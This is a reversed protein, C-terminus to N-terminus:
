NALHAYIADPATVAGSPREVSVPQGFDSYRVSATMTQGQYAVTIVFSTMRGAGDITVEYPMKTATEGFVVTQEPKFSLGNGTGIKNLNITGRFGEPTAEVTNVAAILRAAGGPDNKGPEFGGDLSAPVRTPDLQLWTDGAGPLGSERAAKLYVDDDVLRLEVVPSTIPGLTSVSRRHPSDMLTRATVRGFVDVDCRFSAEDPFAISARLRQAPDGSASTPPASTATSAGDGTSGCAALTVIGILGVLGVRVRGMWSRRVKGLRRRM